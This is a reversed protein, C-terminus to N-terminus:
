KQFQQRQQKLAEQHKSFCALAELMWSELLASGQHEENSAGSLCSAKSEAESKAKAEAISHQAVKETLATSVKKAEALQEEKSESAVAGSEDFDDM